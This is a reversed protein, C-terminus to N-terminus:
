TFMESLLYLIMAQLRLSTRARSAELHELRVKCSSWHPLKLFIPNQKSRLLLWGVAESGFASCLAM